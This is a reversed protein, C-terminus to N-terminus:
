GNTETRAREEDRVAQVLNDIMKHYIVPSVRKLAALYYSAPFLPRQYTTPEADVRRVSDASSFGNPYRKRLKEVNQKAIEDLDLGYVSALDAVYWLVDGLENALKERTVGIPHDHGVNKKVIEGAEGAEGVLGLASVLVRVNTPNEFNATRTAENQYDRFNM